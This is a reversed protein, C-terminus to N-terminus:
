YSFIYKEIEWSSVRTNYEECERNKGAIYQTVIHDGLAEKIVEDNEFEAIAEHLSGPLNGINKEEIMSMFTGYDVETIQRQMLLPTVLLNFLFLVLLVIGYYYILPKKPNKVEKM